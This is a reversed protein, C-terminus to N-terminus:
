YITNQFIEAVTQLRSESFPSELGYTQAFNLLYSDQSTLVEEYLHLGSGPNDLEMQYFQLALDNSVVYSIIYMPNTYFHMITVFDQSDWQSSDLGFYQCVEEYLATVNEVTLESSSLGYLAHEFLAYASQEM